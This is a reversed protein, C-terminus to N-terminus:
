KLRNKLESAYDSLLANYDRINQDHLNIKENMAEIEQTGMDYDADKYIVSNYYTDYYRSASEFHECAEYLNTQIESLLILEQIYIDILKDDIYSIELSARIDNYKQGVDLFYGRALRCNSEVGTYDYKEYSFSAESYFDIAKQEDTSAESVQAQADLITQYLLNEQKLKTSSVYSSVFLSAFLISAVILVTIVTTVKAKSLEEKSLEGNKM